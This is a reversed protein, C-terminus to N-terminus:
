KNLRLGPHQAVTNFTASHTQRYYLIFLVIIVSVGLCITHVFWTLSALAFYYSRIGGNFNNSGLTLLKASYEVFIEEEQETPKGPLAGIMVCLYNFQRLSTTFLFFSYVILGTPLILRFVFDKSTMQSWFFLNSITKSGAEAAGFAAALGILILISASAFFTVSRMVHGILQTDTVRLKNSCLSLMWRERWVHMVSRLTPRIKSPVVEMVVSYFLFSIIFLIIVLGDGSM